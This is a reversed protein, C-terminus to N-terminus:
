EEMTSKERLYRERSKDGVPDVQEAEPWLQVSDRFSWDRKETQTGIDYTYWSPMTYRTGSTVQEVTHKYGGNGPFLIMDGAQPKVVLDYEPFTIEGGVYSDNPYMLVSVNYTFFDAALAPSGDPKECDCHLGSTMGQVWKVFHTTNVAQRRIPIDYKETFLKYAEQFIKEEYKNLLDYVAPNERQVQDARIDKGGMFEDDNKHTDLFDNILKLDEDSIFNHILVINDKNNGLRKFYEQYQPWNIDTM